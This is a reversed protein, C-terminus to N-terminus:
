KAGEAAQPKAKIAPRVTVFGGKSGPIAGKILLLQRAEDIRFVDLNQTTRTVDGLHGTMRKGPFVRGPDQAMGISGPVNHSRSNGHSARQSSMNHRKITGAYGKGITTGQVDVKQGVSFVSSAAIVGGAKHQGATDATVRFEQIIEGAEVGAKALHGAQPKTVRSAKRSGFTVQLAVYGDTEQSKIQTVRNNSVDVVTVPVADGDDTFLRMMGVKRGLLGLSNSLSM